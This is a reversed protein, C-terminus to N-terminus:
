HGCTQLHSFSSWSRRRFTGQTAFAELIMTGLTTASIPISRQSSSRSAEGVSAIQVAPSQSRVGTAMRAETMRHSASPQVTEEDKASTHKRGKHELFHWRLPRLSQFQKYVQGEGCHSSCMLHGPEELHTVMGESKFDYMEDPTMDKYCKSSRVLEAVSDTVCRSMNADVGCSGPPPLPLTQASDAAAVVADVDLSMM